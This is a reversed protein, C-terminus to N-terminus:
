KTEPEGNENRDNDKDSYHIHIAPGGRKESHEHGHCFEHKM